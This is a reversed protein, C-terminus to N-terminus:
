EFSVWTVYGEADTGYDVEAGFAEAIARFPLYTRGEKIRAAGDFTMVEAEGDKTITLFEDGIGIVIEMDETTLTVTEVPADKPTWDAEAGFAEALFRVPVFTRGGEIFAPADLETVEGDVLAVNSGITLVVKGVAPSTKEEVFTVDFTKALGEDTVVRVSYTGYEEAVLVFSAKGNKFEEKEEVELDGAYIRYGEKDEDEVALNGDADVYALDVKAELGDVAVEVDIGVPSGSVTIDLTATLGSEEHVATITVVGSADKKLTVVGDKDVTAIRADSTSFYVDSADLRREIGNKDYEYVRVQFKNVDNDEDDFVRVAANDIKDTDTEDYLKLGLKEAEGFETTNVVTEAYIGTDPIYVRVVYEGEKDPTFTVKLEGKDWKIDFDKAKLEKGNPDLIEVDDDKDVSVARKSGYRDRFVFNVSVDEDIEAYKVEDKAQVTYASAPAVYVELCDGANKNKALVDASDVGNVRAYYAYFGAKERRVSLEAEGRRDTTATGIKRRTGFNKDAERFYEYFTVEEGEVWYDQEDLVEAILKFSKGATAEYVDDDNDDELNTRLVISAVDSDAEFTITEEGILLAKDEDFEDDEFKYVSITAKGAVNSTVEFTVNGSSNTTATVPQGKDLDKLSVAANNVKVIEEADRDSVVWFKVPTNKVLGENDRFRVTFKANEDLDVTDEDVTVTSGAASYGAYPADADVVVVTLGQGPVEWGADGKLTGAMVYTGAESFRMKITFETQGEEAEDNYNFSGSEVEVEDKTVTYELTAGVLAEAEGTWELTYDVLDESAVVVKPGTLVLAGEPAEVPEDAFAVVPLMTVIMAVAVLMALLKRTKM